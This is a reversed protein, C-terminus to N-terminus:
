RNRSRGYGRLRKRSSSLDRPGHGIGIDPGILAQMDLGDDDSTIRELGERILESETRGQAKAKRALALALTRPLKVTKVVHSMALFYWPTIGRDLVGHRWARARSRCTVMAALRIVSPLSHVLM